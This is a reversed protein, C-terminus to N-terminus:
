IGGTRSKMMRGKGGGGAFIDEAIYVPNNRKSAEQELIVAQNLASNSEHTGGTRHSNALSKYIEEEKLGNKQIIEQLDEIEREEKEMYNETFIVGGFTRRIWPAEPKNEVATVKIDDLIDYNATPILSPPEVPPM